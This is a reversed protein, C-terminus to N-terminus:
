AALALEIGGFKAVPVLTKKPGAERLDVLGLGALFRVDSHVNKFDRHMARALASISKPKLVPIVTLLQLRPPSLIRGLVEWSAVSIVEEGRKSRVKRKLAAAWRANTTELPEVVIKVKKLRVAKM